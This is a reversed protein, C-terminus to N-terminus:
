SHACRMTTGPVASRMSSMSSWTPEKRATQGCARTSSAGYSSPRASERNPAAGRRQAFAACVHGSGNRHAGCGCHDWAQASTALSAVLIASASLLGILKTMLVGEIANLHLREKRTLPAAAAAPERAFM